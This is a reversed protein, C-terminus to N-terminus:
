YLLLNVLQQLIFCCMVNANLRVVLNKECAPCGSCDYKRTNQIDDLYNSHPHPSMVVSLPVEKINCYQDGATITRLSIPVYEEYLAHKHWIEQSGIINRERCSARIIRRCYFVDKNNASSGRAGKWM